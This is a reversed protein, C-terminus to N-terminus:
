KQRTTLEKEPITRMIKPGLEECHGLAVKKARGRKGSGSAVVTDIKLTLGKSDQTQGGGQSTTGWGKSGEALWVEVPDEFDSDVNFNVELHTKVRQQM